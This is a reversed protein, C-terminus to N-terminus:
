KVILRKMRATRHKNKPLMARVAHEIIVGPREERLKRVSVRKLGGPYGSSRIHEKQEWKKGTLKVKSANRVEVFDGADVHPVYSPKRKGTLLTAAESALRGLVRGDADLVHRARVIRPMGTQKKWPM